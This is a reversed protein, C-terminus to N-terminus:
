NIFKLPILLSSMSKFPSQLPSQPSGSQLLNMLPSQPSGFQFQGQLPCHISGSQLPSQLPSQLSGSPVPSWSWRVRFWRLRQQRGERVESGLCIHRPLSLGRWSKQWPVSQGSTVKLSRYQLYDIFIFVGCDLARLGEKAWLSLPDDLCGNFINNLESDSLELGVSFTFFTQVFGGDRDQQRLSALM